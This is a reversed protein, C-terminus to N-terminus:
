PSLDFDLTTTSSNIEVVVESHDNYKAPLGEVTAETMGGDGNPVKKGTKKKWFFEVRYKGPFPGRTPDLAYKGDAVPSGVKAPAAADLSVFQIGGADIPKGAFTVTGSVPVRSQSCGAAAALAAALVFWRVRIARM